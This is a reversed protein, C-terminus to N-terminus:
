SSWYTESVPSTAFNLRGRRAHESCRKEDAAKALDAHAQPWDRAWKEGRRALAKRARTRASKCYRCTKVQEALAAQTAEYAPRAAEMAERMSDTM